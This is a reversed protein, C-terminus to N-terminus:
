FGYDFQTKRYNYGEYEEGPHPKTLILVKRYKEEQEEEYRDEYEYVPVPSDRYGEQEREHRLRLRREYGGDEGGEHSFGEGFDFGFGDHQFGEFGFDPREGHSFIDGGPEEHFDGRNDSHDDPGLGPVPMCGSSLRSLLLLLLLCPVTQSRM